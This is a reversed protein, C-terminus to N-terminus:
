EGHDRTGNTCANNGSNIENGGSEDSTSGVSTRTEVISRAKPDEEVSPGAVDDTM